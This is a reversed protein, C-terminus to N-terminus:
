TYYAQFKPVRYITYAQSKSVMINIKLKGPSSEAPDPSQGEGHKTACKIAFLIAINKPVLLNSKSISKSSALAQSLLILVKDKVM